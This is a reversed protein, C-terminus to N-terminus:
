FCNGKKVNFKGDAPRETLDDIDDGQAEAVLLTAIAVLLMKLYKMQM